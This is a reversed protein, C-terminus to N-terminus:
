IPSPSLAHTRPHGRPLVRAGDWPQLRHTEVRLVEIIDPEHALALLPTAGSAQHRGEISQGADVVTSDSLSRLRAAINCRLVIIGKAELAAAEAQAGADGRFHDHNGLVAFSYEHMFVTNVACPNDHNHWVICDPRHTEFMEKM